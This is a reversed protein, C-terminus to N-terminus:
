DLDEELFLLRRGDKHHALRGASVLDYIRRRSAALYVAAEEVTLYAHARERGPPLANLHAAVEAAVIRAVFSAAMLLADLESESIISEPQISSQRGGLRTSDNSKRM